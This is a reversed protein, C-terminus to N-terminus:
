SRRGTKGMERLRAPVVHAEFCAACCKGDNLYPFADQVRDVEARCIGCVPKRAPSFRREWHARAVAADAHWLTSRVGDTVRYLTRNGGFAASPKSELRPTGDSLRAAAANTGAFLLPNISM